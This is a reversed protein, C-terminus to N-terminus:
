DRSLNTENAPVVFTTTITVEYVQPNSVVINPPVRQAQANVSLTLPLLLLTAAKRWNKNM